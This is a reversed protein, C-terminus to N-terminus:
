AGLPPLNCQRRLERREEPTMDSDDVGLAACLSPQAAAIHKAMFLLLRDTLEQFGFQDSCEALAALKKLPLAEIARDDQDNSLQVLLELLEMIHGPAAPVEIRWREEPLLSDDLEALQVSPEFLYSQVLLLRPVEIVVNEFVLDM